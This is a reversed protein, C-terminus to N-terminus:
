LYKVRLGLARAKLNLIKPTLAPRFETKVGNHAPRFHHTRHLGPFGVGCVGFLAIAIFRSYYSGLQWFRLETCGSLGM